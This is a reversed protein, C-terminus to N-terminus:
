ISGYKGWKKLCDIYGAYLLPDHPNDSIRNKHLIEAEEWRGAIEFRIMEEDHTLVNSGGKLLANLDVRNEMQTYINKLYGLIEPEISISRKSKLHTEFHMLAQPYAKSHYAAIAMTKDPIKGLFTRVRNAESTKDGHPIKNLWKRCYETISVVVQLYQRNRSRRDLDTEPEANIELITLMETLIGSNEDSSGLIISHLVVYPILYVTIDVFDSVVLPILADFLAKASGQFANIMQRYWKKVWEDFSGVQTFIPYQTEAKPFSFQFSSRIYPALFEQVPKPLLSESRLASEDSFGACKLLSQISTQLFQLTYENKVTNYANYIYTALLHCVFVRNEKHSKFAYMIFVDNDIMRVNILSPDIAGVKGFCLAILYSIDKNSAYKRVLYLLQSFLEGVDIPFEQLIDSLLLNLKQLEFLVQVDDSVNLRNMIEALMQQESQKKQVLREKLSAKLDQLEEFDPLIPLDSLKPEVTEIERDFVNELVKAVMLRINKTSVSLIKLLGYVIRNFNSRLASNDITAIFIEWLSLAELQMNDLENVTQFLKM